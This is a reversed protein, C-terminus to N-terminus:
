AAPAQLFAAFRGAAVATQALGPRETLPCRWAPRSRPWMQSM